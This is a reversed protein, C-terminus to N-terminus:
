VNIDIPSEAPSSYKAAILSKGGMAKDLVSFTVVYLGPIVGDGPKRTYMSFSGDTAIEGTATKRIQATTNAPPELRITRVGGTIPSGDKFQVRGSVEYSVRGGCGSLTPMVVVMLIGIIGRQM